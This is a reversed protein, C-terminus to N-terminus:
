MNHRFYFNKHRSISAVDFLDSVIRFPSHEPNDGTIVSKDDSLSRNRSGKHFNSDSFSRQIRIKENPDLCIEEGQKSQQGKKVRKNTIKLEKLKSKKTRNKRMYTHPKRAEKNSTLHQGVFKNSRYLQSDRFSIDSM